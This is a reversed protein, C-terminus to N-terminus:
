AHGASKRARPRTTVEIAPQRQALLGDLGTPTFTRRARLAHRSHTLLYPYENNFWRPHLIHQVSPPVVNCGPHQVFFPALNFLSTAGIPTCTGEASTAGGYTCPQNM